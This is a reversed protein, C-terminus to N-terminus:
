MIIVILITCRKEFAKFPGLKGRLYGRVSLENPNSM